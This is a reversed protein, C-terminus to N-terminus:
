EPTAGSLDAKIGTSGYIEDEAWEEVPNDPSANLALKLMVCSTMFALALIWLFLLRM